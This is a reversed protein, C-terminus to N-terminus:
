GRTMKDVPATLRDALDIGGKFPRDLDDPDIPIRVLDMDVSPSGDGRFSSQTRLSISRM